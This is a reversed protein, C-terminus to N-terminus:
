FGSWGCVPPEKEKPTVEAEGRWEQELHSM